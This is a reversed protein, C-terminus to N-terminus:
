ATRMVIGVISIIIIIVIAINVDHGFDYRSNVRNMQHIYVSRRTAALGWVLGTSKPQSDASFQCSDDVDVMAMTIIAWGSVQYENVTGRLTSPQTSRLVTTFTRLGHWLSCIAAATPYVCGGATHNSVSESASVVLGSRCAYKCTYSSPSKDGGSKFTFPLTAGTTHPLRWLVASHGDMRGDKQGDTQGMSRCCCRSASKGSLDPAPGFCNDISLQQQRSM